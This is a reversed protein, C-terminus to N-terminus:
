CEKYVTYMVCVCYLIFYPVNICLVHVDCVCYLILYPILPIKSPTNVDYNLSINCVVYVDRFWLSLFCGQVWLFKFERLIELWVAPCINSSFADEM